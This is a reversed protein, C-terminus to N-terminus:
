LGPVIRAWIADGRLVHYGAGGVHLPILFKGYTGATKHISFAQKAVSGDRAKGDDTAVLTQSFFPLGKGGYYGM